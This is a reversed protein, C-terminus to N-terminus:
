YLEQLLKLTPERGMNLLVAIDDVDDPIAADDWGDATHRALRVALRVCQVQPDHV